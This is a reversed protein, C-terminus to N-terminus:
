AHERTAASLPRVTVTNDANARVVTIRTRASIEAGDSVAYVFRQRDGVVTRIQGQGQGAPPVITYAEGELGVLEAIGINGSSHLKRTARLIVVTLALFLVGVIFGGGASLPASLDLARYCALGGWGFGMLFTLMGQLSLATAAIDSHGSTGEGVAETGDGDADDGLIAALALRVLYGGTGILAPVTFWMGAGGFFLDTLTGM